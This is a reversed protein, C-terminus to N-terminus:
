RGFFLCENMEHAFRIFMPKGYSALHNLSQRIVEYNVNGLSNLTYGITVVCDNAGIIENAPYYIDTQQDEMSFYTLYAGLNGVFDSNEAIMGFYTGGRPELKAGYYPAASVPGETYLEFDVENVMETKERLLAGWDPEPFDYALVPTCLVLMACLSAIWKKTMM